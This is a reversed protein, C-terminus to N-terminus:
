ALRQKNAVQVLTPILNALFIIKRISIKVLNLSKIKDLHFIFNAPNEFLLFRATIQIKVLELHDSNRSM